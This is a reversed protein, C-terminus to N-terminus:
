KEDKKEGNLFDPIKKIGEAVDGLELHTYVNMTLRIDSHRMSNKAVTPSVGRQALLTGHTHRLAHVDVVRDLTDRKEIGAFALDRSLIRCLGFPVTFLKEKPPLEGDRERRFDLWARLHNVLEPHLPLTAGRGAKESKADLVFHPIDHDLFVRGITISALESKRLGTYILTAYLLKSELGLRAAAVKVEDRVNAYCEGRRKGRRVVTMEHLPRNEAAQLLKVIEEPSLARREHRKDTSERAKPVRMFPNAAMCSNRVAWNCFNNLVARYVNRTRAGMGGAAKQNLWRILASSNMEILRKFRCVECVRRIRSLTERIYGASAGKARLHLEFDELHDEVTDNVRKSIEFEEQTLIGAKIKEVEQLWTNLKHEAARLDRCGTSRERFRGTADTFRAIYVDSEELIRPGNKTVTYVATYEQGNAIWYAYEKGDDGQIVKAGAPVPRYCIKKYVKAM